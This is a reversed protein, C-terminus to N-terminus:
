QRRNIGEAYRDAVLCHLEHNIRRMEDLQRALTSRNPRKAQCSKELRQAATAWKRCLRAVESAKGEFLALRDDAFVNAQDADARLLGLRKQILEPSARDSLLPTGDTLQLFPKILESTNRELARAMGFIPGGINAPAIEAIFAVEAQVARGNVRDVLHLVPHLILGCEYSTITERIMRCPQRQVAQRFAADLQDLWTARPGQDPRYRRTLEGWTMGDRGQKGLVALTSGTGRVPADLPIGDTADCGRLNLSVTYTVYFRDSDPFEDVIAATAAEIRRRRADTLKGGGSAKGVLWVLFRGIGEETAPVGQNERLQSPVTARNHHLFTVPDDENPGNDLDEYLGARGVDHVPECPPQGPGRRILQGRAASIVSGLTM